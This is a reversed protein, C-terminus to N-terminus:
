ASEQQLCLPFKIFQCRRIILIGVRFISLLRKSNKHKPVTSIEQLLDPNKVVQGGIIFAFLYVIVGVFWMKGLKEPQSVKLKKFMLGDKLDRFGEEIRMRHGYIELVLQANKINAVLYLPDDTEHKLLLNLGINKNKHYVVSPLWKIEGAGLPFRKVWGKYDKTKIWVKGCVRIVFNVKLEALFQFFDAKAFGRDAVFVLKVRLAIPVLTLFQILSERELKNLDLDDPPAILWFLPIARKYYPISFSLLFYHRIKTWDIMIELWKRDKLSTLTWIILPVCAKQYDFRSKALFRWLRRLRHTFKIPSPIERALESLIPRKVEILAQAIIALTKVTHGHLKKVFLTNIFKRLKRLPYPPTLGIKLKQM